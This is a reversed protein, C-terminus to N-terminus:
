QEAPLDEDMGGYTMEPSGAPPAQLRGHADPKMGLSLGM